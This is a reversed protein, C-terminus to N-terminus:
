IHEIRITYKYIVDVHNQPSVCANIITFNQLQMPRMRHIDKM